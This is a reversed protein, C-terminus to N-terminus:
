GVIPRSISFVTYTICVYYTFFAQRMRFLYVLETMCAAHRYDRRVVDHSISPFAEVNGDGKGDADSAADYATLRAWASSNSASACNVRCM